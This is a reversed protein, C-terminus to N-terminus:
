KRCFLRFKKRIKPDASTTKLSESPPYLNIFHESAFPNFIGVHLNYYLM